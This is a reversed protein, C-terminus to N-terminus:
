VYYYAIIIENLGRQWSAYPKALFFDINLQKAVLQHAAFEKRNDSTITKLFPKWDMLCDITAMALQEADKGELKRLRGLGSSQRQHFLDRSDKYPM